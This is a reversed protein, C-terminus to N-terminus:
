LNGNPETTDRRNQLLSQFPTEFPESVTLDNKKQKSPFNQTTQKRSFAESLMEKMYQNQVKYENKFFWLKCKFSCANVAHSKTKCM